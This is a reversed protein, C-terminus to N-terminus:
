INNGFIHKQFIQVKKTKLNSIDENILFNYSKVCVLSLKKKCKRYFFANQKRQKFQSIIMM